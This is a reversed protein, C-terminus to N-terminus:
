PTTDFGLYTAQTNFVDLYVSSWTGDQYVDAEVQVVAQGNQQGRNAAAYQVKPYIASVGYYRDTEIESGKVVVQLAAANQSILRDVQTDDDVLMAISVTQVKDGRKMRGWVYGSGPYWGMDTPTNNSIKHRFSLVNSSVKSPSGNLLSTDTSLEDSTAGAYTTESLWVAAERATLVAEDVETEDGTGAGYTGSGYCRATVNILRDPGNEWGWEMEDTFMGNYYRQTSSDLEGEARWDPLSPLSTPTFTHKYASTGVLSSEGSGLVGGALFALTHPKVGDVGMQLEVNMATKTSGTGEEVGSIQQKDDHRHVIEQIFTDQNCRIMSDVAVAADYSAAKDQASVFIKRLRNKPM